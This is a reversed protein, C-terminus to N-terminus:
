PKDIESNIQKLLRLMAAFGARMEDLTSDSLAARKVAAINLPMTAADTKESAEQKQRAAVAAAREAKITESVVVPVFKKGDWAVEAALVTSAVLLTILLTKM